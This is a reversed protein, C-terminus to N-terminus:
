RKTVTGASTALTALPVRIVIGMPLLVVAVCTPVWALADNLVLSGARDLLQEIQKEADKLQKVLADKAGKAEALRMDWADRLM